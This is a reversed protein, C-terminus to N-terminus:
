KKDNIFWDVIFKLTVDENHYQLDNNTQKRPFENFFQKSVVDHHRHHDKYKDIVKEKSLFDAGVKSLYRISEEMVAGQINLNPAEYRELRKELISDQFVM